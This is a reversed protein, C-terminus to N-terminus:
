GFFFPHLTLPVGYLVEEWNNCRNILIFQSRLATRFQPRLQQRIGPTHIQRCLRATEWITAFKPSPERM